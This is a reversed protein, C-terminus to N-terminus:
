VLRVKAGRALRRSEPMAALGRLGSGRLMRLLVTEAQDTKTHAVAVVGAGVREATELLFEYRVERAAAELGRGKGDLAPAKGEEFRVGLRTALALVFDRDKRAAEGRLGHDLHAAVLTAELDRAVRAMAVLLATSDPGGSVGIIITDDGPGLLRRMRSRLAREFRHLKKTTPALLADM